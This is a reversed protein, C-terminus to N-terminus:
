RVVKVRSYESMFPHNSLFDARIEDSIYVNNDQAQAPPLPPNPYHDCSSGAQWDAQRNM